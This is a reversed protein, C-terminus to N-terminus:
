GVMADFTALAVLTCATALMRLAFSVAHAPSGGDPARRWRAMAIEALAYPVLGLLVVRPFAGLACMAAVGMVSARTCATAVRLCAAPGRSVVLTHYGRRADDDRQYAQAAFCMGLVFTSVIITAAIARATMPVRAVSWGALFSLVGYGAVNVAPGFFPHAKWKTRPHSYLVALVSCAACAAGARADAAFAVATAAVLAGYGFAVLGKPRKAVRSAFLAGGEDGDLDANLWLSGASLLIWAVSAIAIALPRRADELELDWHAFGYGTLPGLLVLATGRPRALRVLSALSM